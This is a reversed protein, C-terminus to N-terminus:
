LLNGSAITVDNIEMNQGILVTFGLYLTQHQLFIFCLLYDRHVWKSMASLARLRCLVFSSPSGVWLLIHRMLLINTLLLTRM